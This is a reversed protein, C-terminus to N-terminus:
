DELGEKGLLGLGEIASLGQSLSAAWVGALGNEPLYALSVGFAGM